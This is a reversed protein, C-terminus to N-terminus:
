CQNGEVDMNINEEWRRCPRARSRKGESKGKFCINM